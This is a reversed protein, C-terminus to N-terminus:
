IFSYKFHLDLSVNSLFVFYERMSSQFFFYSFSWMGTVTDLAVITNLNYHLAILIISDRQDGQSLSQSPIKQQIKNAMGDYRFNIWEIICIKSGFNSRLSILWLHDLRISYLHIFYLLSLLPNISWHLLLFRCLVLSRNSQPYPILNQFYDLYRYQRLKCCITWRDLPYYLHSSVGVDCRIAMNTRRKSCWCQIIRIFGASFSNIIM